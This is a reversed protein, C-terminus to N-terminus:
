QYDNQDLGRALKERIKVLQRSVSSKTTGIAEAIAGLTKGDVFRMSFLISEQFNLLQKADEILTSIDQRHVSERAPIKDTQDLSVTGRSNCSRYIKKQVRSLIKSLDGLDLRGNLAAADSCEIFLLASLDEVGNGGLFGAHFEIRKALEDLDCDRDTGCFHEILKAALETSKLM